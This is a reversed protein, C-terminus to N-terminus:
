PLRNLNLLRRHFQVNSQSQNHSPHGADKYSPISTLTQTQTRTSTTSPCSTHSLSPPLLCAVRGPSQHSQTTTQNPTHCRQHDPNHPVIDQLGLSADPRQSEPPTRCPKHHHFTIVNPQTHLTCDPQVHLARLIINESVPADVSHVTWLTTPLSATKSEDLSSHQSSIPVNCSM